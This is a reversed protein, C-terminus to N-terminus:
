RKNDQLTLSRLSSPFASRLLTLYEPCPPFMKESPGKIEYVAKMLYVM